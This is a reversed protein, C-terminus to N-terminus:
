NNWLGTANNNTIKRCQIFAFVSSIALCVTTSFPVGILGLGLTKAFFFALPINLIAMLGTIYVQLTIKGIGNIFTAMITAFISVSIYVLIILSVDNPIFISKGIWVKYFFNSFFFMLIGIAITALWFIILKEMTKKIWKIDNSYYAKTTMPWLPTLVLAWAMSLVTFYKLAVNYITVDKPGMLTAIIFNDTMYMILGAVQIFFFRGSINLVEKTFKLEFKTVSPVLTNFKVRFMYINVISLAALQALSFALAITVLSSKFCIKVFCLALFGTLQTIFNIVDVNYSKQHAHLLNNILRLVMSLLTFILIITTANAVPGQLAVPINFVKNWPIFPNILYIIICLSGCILSMSIYTTSVYKRGLPMNDVAIFEILKNKLGNGLGLDFLTFWSTFTLITLWVGYQTANLYNILLPVSLFSVAITVIKILGSYAVNTIVTKTKADGKLINTILTNIKLKTRSFLTKTETILSM